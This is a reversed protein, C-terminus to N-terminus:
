PGEKSLLRNSIEAKTKKDVTKAAKVADLYRKLLEEFWENAQEIANSAPNFKCFAEQFDLKKCLLVKKQAHITKRAETQALAACAAEVLIKVVSETFFEELM